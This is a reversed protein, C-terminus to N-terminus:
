FDFGIGARFFHEANTYYNSSVSSGSFTTKPDCAKWGLYFNFGGRNRFQLRYGVTLSTHIYLVDYFGGYYVDDVSFVDFGTRFDFFPGGHQFPVDVRANLYLPIRISRREFYKGGYSDNSYLYDESREIILGLGGGIFLYPTGQYGHITAIEFGQTSFNGHFYFDIFGRYGTYSSMTVSHNNDPYSMATITNAHANKAMDAVDSMNYKFLSGDKTEISITGDPSWESVCGKIASGNKLYVTQSYDKCEKTISAVEEYNFVFISGDACHVSLKQNESDDLVNGRVLSGNKLRVTEPIQQAFASVSLAVAFLISILLRSM